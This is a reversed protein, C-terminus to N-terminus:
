EELPDAEEHIAHSIQNLLGSCLGRTSIARWGEDEAAKELDACAGALKSKLINLIPKVRHNGMNMEEALFMAAEFIDLVKVAKSPIGDRPKIVPTKSRSFEDVYDLVHRPISKKLPTPMDGTVVEDMDHHLAAMVCELILDADRILFHELLRPMWLAIWYSHEAVSQRRQVRVIGWRFVDALGRELPKVISM